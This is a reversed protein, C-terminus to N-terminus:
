KKLAQTVVVAHVYSRADNGAAAENRTLLTLKSFVGSGVDFKDGDTSTGVTSLPHWHTGDWVSPAMTMTGGDNRSVVMRYDIPVDPGKFYAFEDQISLLSAIGKGSSNRGMLLINTLQNRPIVCMEVFTNSNMVGLNVETKCSDGGNPANTSMRFYITIPGDSLSIAPPLSVSSSVWETGGPVNPTKPGWKHDKIEANEGLSWGKTTDAFNDAFIVKEGGDYPFLTDAKAAQAVLLAVGLATLRALRPFFTRLM